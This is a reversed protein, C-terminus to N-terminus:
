AIVRYGTAGPAYVHMGPQPTVKLVLSFRNGLAATSDSAYTTLEMHDNSVQAAQVAPGTDGLRVLISAVTSRERYFDEFHRERVRGQPDLIFTGPYAMGRFLPNPQTVSVYQRFQEEVIPDVGDLSDLEAVTNRIGYRTIVESSADSLLPYTINYRDAFAGLTEPSDYSIVALGLGRARLAEVQSQLEM